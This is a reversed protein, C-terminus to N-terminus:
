FFRCYWFALFLCQGSGSCLSMYIYLSSPLSFPTFQSVWFVSVKRHHLHRHPIYSMLVEDISASMETADFSLINNNYNKRILVGVFCKCQDRFIVVFWAAAGFVWGWGCSIRCAFCHQQKSVLAGFLWGWVVLYMVIVCFILCILDLESINIETWCCIEVFILQSVRFDLVFSSLM